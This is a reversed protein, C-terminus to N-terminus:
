NNLLLAQNLWSNVAPTVSRGQSSLVFVQLDRSRKIPSAAVDGVGDSCKPALCM